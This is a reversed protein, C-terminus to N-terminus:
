HVLGCVRNAVNGGISEGSYLEKSGEYYVTINTVHAIVTTSSGDASTATSIIAYIAPEYCETPIEEMTVVVDKDNLATTLIDTADGGQQLHWIANEVGADAAYLEATKKEYVQGAVLGTSMFGLLPVMILGGVVLLVLALVMAKGKEDRMIRKVITKM